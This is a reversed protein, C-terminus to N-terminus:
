KNKEKAKKSKNKNNCKLKKHLKNKDKIKNNCKIQIM